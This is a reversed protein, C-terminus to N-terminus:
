APREAPETTNVKAQARDLEVCTACSTDKPAKANGCECQNSPRRPQRHPEVTQAISPEDTKIGLHDLAKKMEALRAAETRPPPGPYLNNWQETFMRYSSPQNERIDRNGTKIWKNVTTSSLDTGSRKIVENLTGGKPAADLIAIINEANFKPIAM